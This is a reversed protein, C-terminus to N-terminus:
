WYQYPGYFTFGFTFMRGARAADYSADSQRLDLPPHLGADSNNGKAENSPCAVAAHCSNASGNQVEQQHWLCLLRCVKGRSTLLQALVDGALALSGSTLASKFVGELHSQLV